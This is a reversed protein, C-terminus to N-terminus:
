GDVRSLTLPAARLPRGIRPASAREVADHSANRLRSQVIPRPYDLCSNRFCSRLAPATRRFIEIGHRLVKGPTCLDAAERALNLGYERIEGGLGDFGHKPFFPQADLNRLSVFPM